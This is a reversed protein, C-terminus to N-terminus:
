TAEFAAVCRRIAYRVYADIDTKPQQSELHSSQMSLMIVRCSRSCNRGKQVSMSTSLCMSAYNENGLWMGMELAERYESHTFVLHESSFKEDGRNWWASGENRARSLYKNVQGAGLLVGRAMM